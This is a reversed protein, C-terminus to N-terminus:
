PKFFNAMVPEHLSKNFAANLPRCKSLLMFTVPTKIDRVEEGLSDFNGGGKSIILNAQDALARVETSCRKLLTGPFPGDIGNEMLDGAKDLGADLAEKLTADNLTPMGRVVFVVNVDYQKKLTRVFLRDFVIEGANDTFYLIKKTKSLQGRFQNLDDQSLSTTELKEMIFKELSLLGGPMMIDMSNGLIAIKAATYLQDASEDALKELFPLLNLAQTNLHTKEKLFPDPDHVTKTILTMIAEIIAPSTQNWDLGRLGPIKLIESFLIKEAEPSLSLNYMAKMTMNLICPICDPQILM